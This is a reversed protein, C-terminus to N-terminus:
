RRVALPLRATAVAQGPKALARGKVPPCGKGTDPQPPEYPNDKPLVTRVLTLRHRRARCFRLLTSDTDFGKEVSNSAAVWKTILPQSLGPDFHRTDFPIGKDADRCTTTVQGNVL